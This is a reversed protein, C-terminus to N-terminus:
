EDLWGLEELQKTIADIFQTLKGMDVITSELDKKNLDFVVYTMDCGKVPEEVYIMHGVVEYTFGLEEFMEKAGM